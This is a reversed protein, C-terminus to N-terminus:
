SAGARSRRLRSRPDAALARELQRAGEWITSEPFAAYGFLLAGDGFQSPRLERERRSSRYMSLPTTVVASNLAIESLIRDTLGRRRTESRVWGVLHMGAPSPRVDVWHALHASAAAVLAKQREAYVLRMRRVHRAYHGDEIFDTLVAQEVSATHGVAASKASAFTEVLLPPVILYGLRLAPCLTKSFTGVYLVRGNVSSQEGVASRDADLGQLSALPRGVYRFEGDYDDEIVWARARSAWDLLELRRRM